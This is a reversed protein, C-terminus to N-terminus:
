KLYLAKHLVKNSLTGSCFRILQWPKLEFILFKSILVTSQCTFHSSILISFEVVQRFCSCKINNGDFSRKLICLYFVMFRYSLFKCTWNIFGLFLRPMFWKCTCSVCLQIMHVQKGMHYEVFVISGCPCVEGSYKWMSFHIGDVDLSLNINM